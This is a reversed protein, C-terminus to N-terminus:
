RTASAWTGSVTPSSTSAPPLAAVPGVAPSAVTTQEGNDGTVLVLVTSGVDDTGLTYTADTAGAIDACVIGDADCRQWQYTFDIPGTGTWTGPSPTLTEGDLATGTATPTGTTAPPDVAVSSSPVSTAVGAGGDNGATVEVVIAHDVDVPVLMYTPGTAGAIDLCDTGDADCRQWQYTYTITPTGTWTGDTATLTEGDELSGPSPRSSRTSRRRPRRPATQAADSPVSGGGNTATVVVSLVHDIDAPM